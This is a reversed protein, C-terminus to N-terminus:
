DYSLRQRRNQFNSGSCCSIVTRAAVTTGFIPLCVSNWGIKALDVIWNFCMFIEAWDIRCKETSALIWLQPQGLDSNFSFNMFPSTSVTASAGGSGITLLRGQNLSLKLREWCSVTWSALIQWHKWGVSACSRFCNRHFFRSCLDILVFNPRHFKGLFSCTFDPSSLLSCGVMEVVPGLGIARLRLVLTWVSFSYLNQSHSSYDFSSSSDSSSIWTTSTSM